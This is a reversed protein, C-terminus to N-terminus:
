AKARNALRANLGRIIANLNNGAALLVEPPIGVGDPVRGFHGELLDAVQVCGKAGKHNGSQRALEGAARAALAIVAPNEPTIPGQNIPPEAITDM